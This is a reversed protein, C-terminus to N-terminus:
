AKIAEPIQFFIPELGLRAIVSTQHLVALTSFGQSSMEFACFRAMGYTDTLLTKYVDWSCNKRKAHIVLLSGLM